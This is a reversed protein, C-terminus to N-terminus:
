QNKYRIYDIIWLIIAVILPINFGIEYFIIEQWTGSPLTYGNTYWSIMQFAVLFLSITKLNLKM